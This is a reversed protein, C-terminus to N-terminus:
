TEELLYSEAWGALTGDADLRAVLMAPAGEALLDQACARLEDDSAGLLAASPGRLGLRISAEGIPATPLTYPFRQPDAGTARRDQEFKRDSAACGATTALLIGCGSPLPTCLSGLAVLARCCLDMRGWQPDIRNIVEQASLKPLHDGGHESWSGTTVSTAGDSPTSATRSWGQATILVRAALRFRRRRPVAPAESGIIVVGNIGGFGANACLISGPARPHLGPPLVQIAGACGQHAMGVTGPVQTSASITSGIAVEGLGCAGLSHGLLGKYAVVPVGPLARAYALSESDDNYRTGTGHGIVVSIPQRAMALAARLARELGSGDRSPGTLHNADLSSGWGQLHLGQTTDATLLLAGALEGLALGARDRDFPMCGRPDIARLATFGDRIFDGIADGALVLVRQARASVIARGAIGLAVPTSACAASVAFGPVGLDAALEQALHAPGGRYDGPSDLLSDCWRDTDAKTTALLLLDATGGQLVERALRLLVERLPEGLRGAANGQGRTLAQVTADLDGLASAIALAAIRPM